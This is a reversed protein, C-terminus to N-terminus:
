HLSLVPVNPCGCVCDVLCISKLRVSEARRERWWLPVSFQFSFSRHCWMKTLDKPHINWAPCWITNKAGHIKWSHNVRSTIFTWFFKSCNSKERFMERFM